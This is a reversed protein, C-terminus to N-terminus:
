FISSTKAGPSTGAALPSCRRVMHSGKAAAPRCKLPRCSRGLAQRLCERPQCLGKAGSSASQASHQAQPAALLQLLQRM